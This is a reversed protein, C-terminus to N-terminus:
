VQYLHKVWVVFGNQTLLGLKDKGLYNVAEIECFASSSGAFPDGDVPVIQPVFQGPTSADPEGFVRFKTHGKTTPNYVQHKKGEKIMFNTQKFTSASGFTTAM